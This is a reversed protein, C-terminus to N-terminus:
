ADKERRFFTRQKRAAQAPAAPKNAPPPMSLRQPAEAVVDETRATPPASPAPTMTPQAAPAPAGVGTVNAFTGKNLGPPPVPKQQKREPPPIAQRPKWERRGPRPRTAPRPATRPNKAQEAMQEAAQAKPCGRWNAPHDGECNCCRPAEEKTKNCERAAHQGACKVCRTPQNCRVSSHGFRQCRYCQSIANRPTYPGVEIRVGLLTTLEWVQSWNGTQKVKLLFTNCNYRQQGSHRPLPILLTAQIGLNRLEGKALELDATHHLGRIVAKTEYEDKLPFTHFSVQKRQLLKQCSRFSQVDNCYVYLRDGKFRATHNIGEDRLSILFTTFTPIVSADDIVLPPIKERPTANPRPPTNARGGSKITHSSDDSETGSVHDNNDTKRKKAGKATLWGGEDVVEM